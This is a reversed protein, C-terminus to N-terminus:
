NSARNGGNREKKVKKQARWDVKHAHDQMVTGGVSEIVSNTLRGEKALKTQKPKAAAMKKLTEPNWVVSHTSALVVSPIKSPRMQIGHDMNRWGQQIGERRKARETGRPIKMEKNAKM